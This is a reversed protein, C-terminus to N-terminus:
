PPDTHSGSARGGVQAAAHRRRERVRGFASNEVGNGFTLDREVGRIALRQQPSRGRGVEGSGPTYTASTM